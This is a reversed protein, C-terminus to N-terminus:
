KEPELYLVLFILIILYTKTIKLLISACLPHFFIINQVALLILIILYTKTIKLPIYLLVFPIFFIINHVALLQKSTKKKRKMHRSM